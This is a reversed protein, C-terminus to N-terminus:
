FASKGNSAWCRGSSGCSFGHGTSGYFAFIILVKLGFHEIASRLTAETNFSFQAWYAGECNRPRAGEAFAANEAILGAVIVMGELVRTEAANQGIGNMPQALWLM